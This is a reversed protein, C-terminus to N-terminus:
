KLDAKIKQYKEPNSHRLTTMYGSASASYKSGQKFIEGQKAVEDSKLSELIEFTAADIAKGKTAHLHEILVHAQGEKKLKRDLEKKIDDSLDAIKNYSSLNNAEMGKFAGGEAKNLLSSVAKKDHSILNITDAFEQGNKFLNKDAKKALEVSKEQGFIPDFSKNAIQIAKIAQNLETGDKFADRKSLMRAAAEVKSGKNKDPENIIKMLDSNSTRLEEMEKEAESVDKVHQNVAVKNWGGKAGKVIGKDKVGAGVIGGKVAAELASPSKLWKNFANYQSKEKFGEKIGRGIPNGYATWKAGSWTTDAVKKGWGKVKGVVKDSFEVGSSKAVGIGSWLIIIPIIYFAASAIWEVMAQPANPSAKSVMSRYNENAMAEMIHLSIAMVFIMIPAFFSYNMLNKWWKDAYGGMSPIAYGVFGIPSFMVLMTLAVLRVIFLAAIILLTMGLIFVFIISAIIYAIEYQTFNGPMLLNSLKSFDGFGAMIGSGSVTGGSSSVFLNNLLYYFAVNSIDIVIRAIPYSFNVLLANILINLWVKKINWKDMRFITGFASFLLVLIFSMNLLDRVMIWVDKVAQKNLMGNNGSINSPDVAWSFLTAAIAFLWGVANFVGFLLLQTYCKFDGLECTKTKETGYFDAISNAGPLSAAAGANGGDNKYSNNGTIGISVTDAFACGGKYEDFVRKQGDLDSCVCTGSTANWSAGEGKCSEQSAAAKTNNASLFLFGFALFLVVLLAKSKIDQSIIAHGTSNMNFATESPSNKNKLIRLIM